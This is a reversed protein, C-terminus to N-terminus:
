VVIAGSPLQYSRAPQADCLAITYCTLAYSVAGCYERDCRANAAAVARCQIRGLPPRCRADSFCRGSLDRHQEWLFGAGQPQYDHDTRAIKTCVM